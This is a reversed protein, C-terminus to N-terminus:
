SIGLFIPNLLEVYYVIKSTIIITPLVETVVVDQTGLSAMWFNLHLEKLSTPNAGMDCVYEAPWTLDPLREKALRRCNVYGKFINAGYDSASVRTTSSVQTWRRWRDWQSKPAEMLDTANSWSTDDTISGARYGGIGLTAVATEASTSTPRMEVNFSMGHVLYNTYINAWQDHGRPQHGSGSLNPDYIGNVSYAYEAYTVAASTLNMTITEWYPLKVMVRASTIQRPLTVRSNDGYKGGKKWKTAVRRKITRRKKYSRRKSKKYRRSSKKWKRM